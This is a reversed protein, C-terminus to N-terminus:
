ARSRHQRTLHDCFRGRDLIFDLYYTHDVLARVSEAGTIRDIPAELDASNNELLYIRDLGTGSTMPSVKPVSSTNKETWNSALWNLRGCRLIASRAM